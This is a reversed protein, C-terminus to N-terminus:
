NIWETKRGPSGSLAWAEWTLMTLYAVVAAIGLAPRDVEFVSAILFMTLTILGLRVFFGLLAAAHYVRMSLAAARSLAIGSLLFNGAVIVVGIAASLAGLNGRLGWFVAVIVPGLVAVRRITARAIDAEVPASVPSPSEYALPDFETM